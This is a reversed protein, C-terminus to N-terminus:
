RALTFMSKTLVVAGATVGCIISMICAGVGVVLLATGGFIAVDGWPDDEVAGPDMYPNPYDGGRHARRYDDAATWGDSTGGNPPRRVPVRAPM